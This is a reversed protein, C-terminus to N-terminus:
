GGSPTPEAEDAGMAERYARALSSSERVPGLLLIQDTAIAIDNGMGYPDASLAQVVFEGEGGEPDPVLRMVAADRLQLSDSGRAAVRGLFVGGNTTHIEQLGGESLATAIPDVFLSPAVRLGIWIGAGVIIISVVVAALTQARPLRVTFSRTM